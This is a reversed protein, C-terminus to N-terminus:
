KLNIHVYGKKKIKKPNDGEEMVVGKDALELKVRSFYTADPYGFNASGGELSTKHHVSNWVVVNKRGTTISDGVVFTLRRKFAKILLFLVEKGETTDPLFADRRTGRYRTGDEKYGDYFSYHIHWTGSCEYGSCPYQGEEFYQWTMRGSPMEGTMFGYINACIPCKLYSKDGLMMEACGKHFYHDSCNDFKIVSIQSPDAVMQIQQELIEEKKLTHINDYFECRCIPCIEEEAIDKQHRQEELLLYLEYITIEVWDTLKSCRCSHDTFPKSNGILSKEFGLDQAEQSIDKQEEGSVGEKAGAKHNEINRDLHLKDMKESLEDIDKRQETKAKKDSSLSILTKCPNTPTPLSKEM